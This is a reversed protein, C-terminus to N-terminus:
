VTIVVKGRAHGEGVYAVAEATQSLEFIRDIVPTVEGSEILRGMAALDDSNESGVFVRFRQRSFLSLIMGWAIRPLSALWRSNLKGNNPILIGGPKLVHRTELLSHSAANDFIVDYWGGLKTFDEQSYDIVHDAGITRLLDVNKTSCVATVEAGLGKAVQVAFTGVGGSAGNILVKQGPTVQAVDRMGQLATTGAVPVAAAQGFTLNAPKLALKDAAAVAYDAFAGRAVGFVEDGPQFRTVNKGVAEVVGAVDMGRVRSKPRVLGFGLRLIYPKGRIIAPDAANVSAARVRVLVDEDDITPVEIDALVGAAGYRDHVFAKMQSNRSSDVQPKVYPTLM